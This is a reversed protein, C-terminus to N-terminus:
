LIEFGIKENRYKEEKKDFIVIESLKKNQQLNYTEQTKRM